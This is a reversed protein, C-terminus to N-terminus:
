RSNARTDEKACMLDRLKALAYRYRSGATNLSIGLLNGIQSFTLEGWIHLVIVQRQDDPLAVLARRLNQEEAHDRDPLSFWAMDPDLPRNRHTVKSENLVANRVCGFLYATKDVARSLSGNEM